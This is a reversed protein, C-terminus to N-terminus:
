TKNLGLQYLEQIKKTIRSLTSKSPSNPDLNQIKTLINAEETAIDDDSYILKSVSTLLNDYDEPHPNSGLYEALLRDCKEVTSDKNQALM